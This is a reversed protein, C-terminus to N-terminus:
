NLLEEMVPVNIYVRTGTDESSNINFIGNMVKIRAEIQTLGLGGIHNERIKEVDFSEKKFRLLENITNDNFTDMM